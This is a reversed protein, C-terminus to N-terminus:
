CSKQKFSFPVSTTKQAAEVDMSETIGFQRM